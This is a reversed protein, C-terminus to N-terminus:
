MEQTTQEETTLLILNLTIGSSPITIAWRAKCGEQLEADQHHAVM